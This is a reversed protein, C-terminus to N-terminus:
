VGDVTTGKAVGTDDEDDGITPEGEFADGCLGSADDDGDDDVGLECDEDDVCAGEGIGDDPDLEGEGVPEGLEGSQIGSGAGCGPLFNM